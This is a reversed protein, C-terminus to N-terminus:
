SLGIKKKLDSTKGIYFSKDLKLQIIYVYNM